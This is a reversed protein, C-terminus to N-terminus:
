FGAVQTKDRARGLCRTLLRILPQKRQGVQNDQHPQVPAALVLNRLRGRWRGVPFAFTLGAILGGGIPDGREARSLSTRSTAIVQRKRDYYTYNRVLSRLGTMASDPIDRGM